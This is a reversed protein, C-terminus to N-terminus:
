LQEPHVNRTTAGGQKKQGHKQPDGGGNRERHEDNLLQLV